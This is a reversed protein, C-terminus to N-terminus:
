KRSQKPDFSDRLGDGIANFGLVPLVLALGPFMTMWWAQGMFDTGNKLMLGLSPRPPQVGVGLFSLTSTTLIGFALQLTTTVILPAIINPVIHRLMIRTDSVGRVQLGEIFEEERISVSESRAIRTFIPTYAVGLVLAITWQSPGIAAILGLALILSPFSMLIDVSRMILNDTMGGNYGALLGISTGLMCALAVGALTISFIIRYGFLVRTFIDRGLSDTGFIHDGSPSSLVANYDQDTPTYPTLVPALVAVTVLFVILILGFTALRNKSFDLLFETVRELSVGKTFEDEVEGGDARTRSNEEPM